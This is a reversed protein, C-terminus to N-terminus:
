EIMFKFTKVILNPIAKASYELNKDKQGIIIIGRVKQAPKAEHEKVYGMYRTIQGITSYTPVGYKKLEIIVLDGNIDVCLLDIRGVPPVPYQRKILKLGKEIDEIRESVVNELNRESLTSSKNYSYESDREVSSNQLTKGRIPQNQYNEISDKLLNKIEEFKKDDIILRKLTVRLSDSTKAFRGYKGYYIIKEKKIEEEIEWIRLLVIRFKSPSSKCIKPDAFRTHPAEPKWIDFLGNHCITDWLREDDKIFYHSDYVAIYKHKYDELNIERVLSSSKYHTQGKHLTILKPFPRRQVDCWISTNIREGNKEFGEIMGAANIGDIKFCIKNLIIKDGIKEM